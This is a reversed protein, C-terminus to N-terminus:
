KLKPTSYEARLEEIKKNYDVVKRIGDLSKMLDNMDNLMSMALTNGGQDPHCLKGMIKFASKWETLRYFLVSVKEDKLAYIARTHKPREVAIDFGHEKICWTEFDIEEEFTFPEPKKVTKVRKGKTLREREEEVKAKAEKMDKNYQRVERDTPEDKGTADKIDQWSRAKEIANDGKLSIQTASSQPLTLKAETEKLFNSTRYSPINKSLEAKLETKEVASKALSRAYNVSLSKGGILFGEFYKEQSLSSNEACDEFAEIILLGRIYDTQASLESWAKILGNRDRGQEIRDRVTLKM